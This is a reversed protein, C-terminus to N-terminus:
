KSSRWYLIYLFWLFFFYLSLQCLSPKRDHSKSFLLDDFSRLRRVAEVWVRFHSLCLGCVCEYRSHAKNRAGSDYLVSCTSSDASWNIRLLLLSGGGGCQGRIGDVVLISSTCRAQHSSSSSSIAACSSHQIRSPRSTNFLRQLKHSKILHIFPNYM